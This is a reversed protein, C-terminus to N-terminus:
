ETLDSKAENQINPCNNKVHKMLKEIQAIQEQEWEGSMQKIKGLYEDFLYAMGTVNEENWNEMQDRLMENEDNYSKSHVANNKTEKMIQVIAKAKAETKKSKTIGIYFQTSCEKLVKMLKNKHGTNIKEKPVTNLYPNNVIVTDCNNPHNLFTVLTQYAGRQTGMMVVKDKSFRRNIEYMIKEMRQKEFVNSWKTAENHISLIYMCEKVFKVMANEEYNQAYQNFDTQFKEPFFLLLPTEKNIIKPVSLQLQLVNKKKSSMWVKHQQKVSNNNDSGNMNETTSNNWTFHDLINEADEKIQLEDETKCKKLQPQESESYESIQNNDSNISWSRELISSISSLREDDFNLSTIDDRIEPTRELIKPSSINSLVGYREENVLKYESGDFKELRYNYKEPSENEKAYNKYFRVKHGGNFLEDVLEPKQKTYMSLTRKWGHCIEEIQQHTEEIIIDNREFHISEINLNRNRDNYVLKIKTPHNPDNKIFDLNMSFLLSVNNEIEVKVEIIM